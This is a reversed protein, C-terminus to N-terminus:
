VARQKPVDRMVVEVGGRELAVKRIKQALLTNKKYSLAYCVMVPTCGMIKAIKLSEGHEVVIKRKMSM